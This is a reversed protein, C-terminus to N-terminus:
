FIQLVMQDQALGLPFGVKELSINKITIVHMLLLLFPKYIYPPYGGCSNTPDDLSAGYAGREAARTFGHVLNKDLNM